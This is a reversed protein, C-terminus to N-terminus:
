AALQTNALLDSFSGSSAAIETSILLNSIFSKIGEVVMEGIPTAAAILILGVVVGIAILIIQETSLNM